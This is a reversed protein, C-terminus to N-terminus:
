LIDYMHAAGHSFRFKGIRFCLRLDVKCYSLLQYAGKNEGYQFYLEEEELIFFKLSRAMEQLQMPRNRDSRTPYGSSLVPKRADLSM